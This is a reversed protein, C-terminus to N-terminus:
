KLGRKELLPGVEPDRGRFDRYLQGADKSGGQSLITGRFHMGNDRTMGGHEKFWGFADAELVEAWLYAYYGAAYGGGWIHSFYCTRYRPLVMPLDLGYNSLAAKEFNPVDQLPADAPLMHWQLDLLAAALYETTMFGQNFKGSKKIKDVLAKPMAEGTKYNKAYNAFVKPDSAWNENFQSPFEVFDRPVNTGSFYPYKQKSLLGHLAHGFEHFMTTVEDFSLLAPQGDAPKQINVNQTVIPKEDLLGSQDQFSDMWAGGQKNDRAYYDAYILGITSSDADFVEFVRVEPRYVPLDKREKFSIGYMRNAAFFVGDHLVRDLEFYPKIQSEDLDYEAKRVKEAYFDWDWPALTFGGKEKDIVAQLKAAEAKVNKVAAPVMGTLLKVAADPTKAMQDDLSYAAYNPFGLLKARQARLQALRSVTATQDTANGLMGRQTSATFIRERLARNKLEGLVPQMTTNQLTILWKGESGKEKAAIAAAEIEADTMGDLQAKDDVLVAANNVEKLLNESFLTTLKSEEENLARLSKQDASNLLAGARVMRTYYRDVLRVSVSDLGLSDRTDYLSKVRAFLKPDLNIADSHAALKPAMDTNVVQLSDNTNSAILNFFVKSVRTLEQGSKELAIITNDFTAADKNDAIAKVEDLQKKMGAEMAPSFDRNQIKSFDPAGLYLTSEATFPNERAPATAPMENKTTDSTGCSAALLLISLAALSHNM